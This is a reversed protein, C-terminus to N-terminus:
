AQPKSHNPHPRRMKPTQKPPKQRRPQTFPARRMKRAALMEAVKTAQEEGTETPIAPQTNKEFDEM